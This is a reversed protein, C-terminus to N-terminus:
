GITFIILKILFVVCGLSLFVGICTLFISEYRKIREERAPDISKFISNEEDFVPSNEDDELKM